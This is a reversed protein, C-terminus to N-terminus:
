VKGWNQVIPHLEELRNGCDAVRIMFIHGDTGYFINGVIEM